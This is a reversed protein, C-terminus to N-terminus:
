QTIREKLVTNMEMRLKRVERALYNWTVNQEEWKRLGENVQYLKNKRSPRITSPDAKARLDHLVLEDLSVGFFKSFQVVDDISPKSFGNEYNSWTSAKIGVLPEMDKQKLKKAERLHRLNKGLNYVQVNFKKLHNFVNTEQLSYIYNIYREGVASSCM